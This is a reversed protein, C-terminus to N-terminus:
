LRHDPSHALMSTLDPHNLHRKFLYLIGGSLVMVSGVVMAPKLILSEMIWLSQEAALQSLGIALGNHIMHIIIGPYVSRTVYAILGLVLGNLLTSPIWWIPHLLCFLLSSVAIAILPHRYRELHAQLFGRFFLEECISAAVTSAIIILVFDGLTNLVLMNELMNEMEAPMTFRKNFVVQIVNSLVTLAVGLLASFLGVSLSVPQIRLVRRIDFRKFVLLCGVPALLVLESLVLGTDGLRSLASGSVFWVLLTIGATKGVTASDPLGTRGQNTGDLGM